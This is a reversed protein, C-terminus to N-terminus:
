LLYGHKIERCELGAEATVRDYETCDHTEDQCNRGVEKPVPEHGIDKGELDDGEPLGPTHDKQRFANELELGERVGSSM